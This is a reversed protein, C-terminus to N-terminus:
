SCMCDVHSFKNKGGKKSCYLAHDAAEIVKQMDCQNVSLCTSIGISVTIYKKVESYEHKLNELALNDIIKEALEVASKKAEHELIILFEEGGYRIIKETIGESSKKLVDAVKIIAIDGMEHGYHDNYLKFSDIDIMLLSVSNGANNLRQGAYLSLYNRNYLGTLSDRISDMEYNDNLESLQSIEKQAADRVFHKHLTEFQEDTKKKRTEYLKNDCIKLIQLAMPYEGLCEYTKALREYAMKLYYLDANSIQDKMYHYYKIAEAYNEMAFYIDGIRCASIIHFDDLIFNEKHKEYIEASERALVLAKDLNVKQLTFLEAKLGLMIAYYIERINVQVEPMIQELENLYKLANEKEGTKLYCNILNCLVATKLNATIKRYREDQIISTYINITESLKDIKSYGDALVNLTMSEMEIFGNERSLEISKILYQIAQIYDNFITKHIYGLHLYVRANKKSDSLRANKQAKDMYELVEKPDKEYRKFWLINIYHNALEGYEEHKHFIKEAEHFYFLEQAKDKMIYYYIAFYSYIKGTYVPINAKQAIVLAKQWAEIAKDYNDLKYEIIADAYYIRLLVEDSFVERSSLLNKIEKRYKEIGRNALCIECTGEFYFIIWELRKIM